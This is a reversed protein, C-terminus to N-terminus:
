NLIKADLLYQYIMFFGLQYGAEDALLVDGKHIKFKVYFIGNSETKQLNIRKKPKLYAYCGFDETKLFKAVWINIPFSEETQVDFVRGGVYVTDKIFNLSDIEFGVSLSDLDSIIHNSLYNKIDPNKLDVKILASHNCGVFAILLISILFKL